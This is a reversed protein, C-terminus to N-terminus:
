PGHSERVGHPRRARAREHRRARHHERPLRDRARMMAGLPRFEEPAHWPDFSMKAVKADLAKGEASTLDQKPIVVKGVATWPSEWEKTPDEIPTQEVSAFPQM